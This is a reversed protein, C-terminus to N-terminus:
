DRQVYMCVFTRISLRDSMTLSLLAKQSYAIAASFARKNAILTLYDSVYIQTTAQPHAAISYLSLFSLSLTTNHSRHWNSFVSQTPQHLM